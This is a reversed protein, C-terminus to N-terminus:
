SEGERGKDMRRESETKREKGICAHACVRVSWWEVTSPDKCGVSTLTEQWSGKGPPDETPRPAGGCGPFSWRAEAAPCEVLM